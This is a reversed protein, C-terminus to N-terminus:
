IGDKRVVIYHSKDVLVDMHVHVCCIVDESLWHIKRGKHLLFIKILGAHALM